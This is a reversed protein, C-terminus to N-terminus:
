EFSRVFQRDYHYISTFDSSAIHLLGAVRGFCNFLPHLQSIQNFTHRYFSSRNRLTLYIRWELSILRPLHHQLAQAIQTFDITEDHEPCEDVTLDFHTLNPFLSLLSDFQGNHFLFNRLRSLRLRKLSSYPANVYVLSTWACNCSFNLYSLNPCLLLIKKVEDGTREEITLQRLSPLTNVTSSPLVIKEYSTDYLHCIKLHPFAGTFIWNALTQSCYPIRLSRLHPCLIPCIFKELQDIPELYEDSYISRCIIFSQINMFNSFNFQSLPSSNSSNFHIQVAAFSDFFAFVPDCHSTTILILNRLSKLITNLRRNLSSFSFYLEHVSLYRFIEMLLEVPLDELRLVSTVNMETTQCSMVSFHDINDNVASYDVIMVTM